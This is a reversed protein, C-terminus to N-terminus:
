TSERVYPLRLTFRCGRDADIPSDLDLTGGARAAFRRALTLGMGTGATSRPGVSRFLQFVRVHHKPLIGPGDDEIELKLRPPAISVRVCVKAEDRDHHRVANTLLNRLIHVFAIRPVVVRPGPIASLDTDVTLIRGPPSSQLIERALQEIEPGLEIPEPAQEETGARAYALLGNLMEDMGAARDRIQLLRPAVQKWVDEPLDEELFLVLNSIGRIPTRLDHSATYAFEDLAELSHELQQNTEELAIRAEEEQTVDRVTAVYGTSSSGDLELPSTRTDGIFTTGDRRMYKVRSSELAPSSARQSHARGRTDFTRPDAYLVRASEGVIEESKWGFLEEAAPNLERIRRHVDEIVIADAAFQFIRLRLAGEAAARREIEQIETVDTLVARSRLFEGGPGRESTASVLIKRVSGDARVWDLPVEAVSGERFLRPMVEEKARRRSEEVLFDTVHRGVVEERAYGFHRLWLDSVFEVIGYRDIAHLLAPTAEYLGRLTQEARKLQTLDRHIGLMRVPRGTEDRIAIGLCRIWKTEGTRSRFRVVQDYPHSPNQCHKEFNEIATGLDEEFIRTQWWTSSHEVKHDEFGLVEKLRPSLWEHLPQELDWYWIGDLLGGELPELLSDPSQRIFEYLEQLLYHPTADRLPAPM